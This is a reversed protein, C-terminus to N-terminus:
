TPSDEQDHRSKRSLPSWTDPKKYSSGPNPGSDNTIDTILNVLLNRLQRQAKESSRFPINDGTYGSVHVLNLCGDHTM